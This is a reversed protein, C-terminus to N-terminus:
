GYGVERGARLGLEDIIELRRGDGNRITQLCLASKVLLELRELLYERAHFIASSM